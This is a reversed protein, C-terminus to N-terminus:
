FSNSAESAVATLRPTVYICWYLISCCTGSYCSVRMFMKIQSLLSTEIKCCLVCVLSEALNLHIKNTVRLALDRYCSLWGFVLFRSFATHDAFVASNSFTGGPVKDVTVITLTIPFDCCSVDALWGGNAERAFHFHWTQIKFLDLPYGLLLAATLWSIDCPEYKFPM